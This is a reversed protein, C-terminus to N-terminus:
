KGSVLKLFPAFSVKRKLYDKVLDQEKRTNAGELFKKYKESMVGKKVGNKAFENWFDQAYVKSIVYSYYRADYGGVIHGWM